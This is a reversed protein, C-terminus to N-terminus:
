LDLLSRSWADGVLQHDSIQMEEVRGSQPNYYRGKCSAMNLSSQAATKNETILVVHGSLSCRYREGVILEGVKYEKRKVDAKPQKGRTRQDGKGAKNKKAM